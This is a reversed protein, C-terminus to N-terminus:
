MGSPIAKAISAIVNRQKGDHEGLAERYVKMRHGDYRNLGNLSGFWMFGQNDQSISTIVSSSLGDEISIRRFRANGSIAAPLRDPEQAYSVRSSATVALLIAWIVSVKIVNAM